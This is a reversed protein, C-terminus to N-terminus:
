SSPRPVRELAQLLKQRVDPVPIGLHSLWDIIQSLPVKLMRARDLLDSLSLKSEISLYGDDARTLSLLAVADEASLGKPLEMCSLPIGYSAIREAIEQPPRFISRAAIIVHAFPMSNGTHVGWWSCSSSSTLLEEDLDDLHDPARFSLAFGYSKVRDVVEQLTRGPGVADFLMRYPFCDPPLFEPYEGIEGDDFLDLDDVSADSPFPTSIEFGIDHIFHLVETPSKNWAV